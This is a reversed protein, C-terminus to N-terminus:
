VWEWPRVVVYGEEMCLKPVYEDVWPVMWEKGEKNHIVLNPVPGVYLLTSVHGLTEGSELRAELGVWDELFFEGEQLVGMDERAIYVRAGVLQRAEEPTNLGELSISWGENLKRKGTLALIYGEGLGRKRFQLCRALQVSQSQPDFTKVVVEGRTGFTRSVYGLQLWAKM